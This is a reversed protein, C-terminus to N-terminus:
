LAPEANGRRGGGVALGLLTWFVLAVPVHHLSFHTLGVIVVAILGFLAWRDAVAAVSDGQRTARVRRAAIFGGYGVATTFGALGVVGTEAMVQLLINHPSSLRVAAWTGVALQQAVGRYGGHGVGFLPNAAFVQWGLGLMKYRGDLASAATALREEGIGSLAAGVVGLVAIAVVAAVTRWRAMMALTALGACFLALLSMRAYTLLIAGFLFAGGLLALARTSGRAERRLSVIAMLGLGVVGVHALKLRNYFLGSALRTGWQGPVMIQPSVPNKLLWKDLPMPGVVFQLYGYAANLLLAIAFVWALRAQTRSSSSAVGRAGVFFALAMLPRTVDASSRAVDITALGPIGAIGWLVLGIEVPRCRWGAAGGLLLTTVFAAACAIQAPGEFSATFAVFAFLACLHVRRLM